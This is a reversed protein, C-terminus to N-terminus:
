RRQEHGLATRLLRQGATTVAYDSLGFPHLNSQSAPPLLSGIVTISGLRGAVVGGRATAAVEGGAARFARDDVLTMPAEDDLTYGLTPGTWLEEEIPRVAQLLPDDSKSELSAVTATTRSVDSADIGDAGDAGMAALLSVGDDTLVLNGGAEVYAEIAAVYADDTVSEDHIVVLDDYAPQSGDLLAGDAVADVDLAATSGDTMAEGYAEFYATPSVEYERQDYGLVEGPDPADDADVVTLRVDAVADADGELQLTWTGPEVDTLIWDAGRGFEGDEVHDARRQDGGPAAFSAREVEGRRESVAISVTHAADDFAMQHATRAGTLEIELSEQYVSTAGDFPLDASSRELNPSEVYALSRGGTEIGGDVPDAAQAVLEEITEEYATAQLMVFTPLFALPAGRQSNDLAMEFTLATADIGGQEVANALWSGMSGPVNYGISDYVTGYDYAETPAGGWGAREDAAEEIADRHEAMLPAITSEFRDDLAENLADLAANERVGHQDNGLMGLVLADSGYMGHYDAAYAVDDYTRLEDVIHLLDPVTELYEEGVDDDIGDDDNELNEGNPEAPYANPDTLGATPLQRNPDVDAGQVRMFTDRNPNAVSVTEPHRSIWGDPNALVFVLGVEDLRAELDPAEGRLVRELLRLGGEVGAREDGHIGLSCVVVPRDDITDVDSALEALVVDHEAVVGERDNELGPSHGIERVALRDPHEDALHELGDIAEEFAVYDASEDVEPFVREPYDVHKWFPNAGPAFRLRTVLFLQSVAEVEEPTLKAYVAPWPETTVRTEAGVDELREVVRDDFVNILTPIREGADTRDYIYAYEETMARRNADRADTSAGATAQGALGAVGASAAALFSRRSVPCPRDDSDTGDTGDTDTTRPFM